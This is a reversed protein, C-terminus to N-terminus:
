RVSAVSNIFTLSKFAATIAKIKSSLEQLD